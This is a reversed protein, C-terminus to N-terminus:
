PTIGEARLGCYGDGLRNMLSWRQIERTGHPCRTSKSTSPRKM